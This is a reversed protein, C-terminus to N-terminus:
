VWQKAGKLALSNDQTQKSTATTSTISPRNYRDSLSLWRGCSTSPFSCPRTWLSTWVATTSTSRFGAPYSGVNTQEHTVSCLVSSTLVPKAWSSWRWVRLVSHLLRSYQPLILCINLCVKDAFIMLGYDTKGRIARGVCQAAHRM